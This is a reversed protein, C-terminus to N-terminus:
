RPQNIAFKKWAVKTEGPIVQLNDLGLVKRPGSFIYYMPFRLIKPLVFEVAYEVADALGLIWDEPLGMTGDNPLEITQHIKTNKPTKTLYVEDPWRAEHITVCRWVGYIIDELSVKKAEKVGRIEMVIDPLKWKDTPFLLSKPAAGNTITAIEDSILKTFADRDYRYTKRPYRIRSIGATAVFFLIAANVKDGTKWLKRAGQIRKTPGDVRSGGQASSRVKVGILM